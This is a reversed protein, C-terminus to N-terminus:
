SQDDTEKFRLETMEHIGYDDRDLATARREFWVEAARQSLFVPFFPIKNGERGMEFLATDGASDLRRFVYLKSM